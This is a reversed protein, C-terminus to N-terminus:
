ALGHNETRGRIDPRVEAAGDVGGTEGLRTITIEGKVSGVGARTRGRQERPDDGNVSAIEGEAGRGMDARTGVGGGRILDIRDGQDQGTSADVGASSADVGVVDVVQGVDRDEIVRAERVTRRSAGRAETRQGEGSALTTRNVRRQERDVLAEDERSRGREILSSPEPRLRGGGTDVGSEQDAGDAARGGQLLETDTREREERPGAGHRTRDRDVLTVQDAQDRGRGGRRETGTGDGDIRAGADLEARGIDAAAEGQGVVEGTQRGQRETIDAGHRGEGRVIGVGGAGEGADDAEAHDAIVQGDVLVGEAVTPSEEAGQPRDIVAGADDVAGRGVEGARDHGRRSRGEGGGTERRKRGAGDVAEAAATGREVEVAGIDEGARVVDDEPRDARRDLRVGGRELAAAAGDDEIGRIIIAAERGEVETLGDLDAVIIGEPGARQDEVAAREHAVGVITVM